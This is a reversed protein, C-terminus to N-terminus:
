QPRVLQKSKRAFSVYSDLYEILDEIEQKDLKDVSKNGIVDHIFADVELDKYGLNIMEERLGYIKEYEM